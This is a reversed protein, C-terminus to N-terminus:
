GPAVGEARAAAMLHHDMTALVGQRRCALELYLGDYFTLRHKVALDFAAELNPMHDTKLPLDALDAVRANADEASLRRRRVAMLLLNRMEYHWLQPVLGSAKKLALAVEVARQDVEDPLLWSAATSADVVIPKL